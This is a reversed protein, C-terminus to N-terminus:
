IWAAKAGILRWAGVNRLIAEGLLEAVRPTEDAESHEVAHCTQELRARVTSFVYYPAHVGRLVEVM